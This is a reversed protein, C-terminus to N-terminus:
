KVAQVMNCLDEYNFGCVSQFSAQVSAGPQVNSVVYEVLHASVHKLQVSLLWSLECLVLWELEYASSRDLLDACLLTVLRGLGPDDRMYHRFKFSVLICTGLAARRNKKHIYGNLVLREFYVWGCLAVWPELIDGHRSTMRFLVAKLRRLKTLSFTPSVKPHLARFRANLEERSSETHRHLLQPLANGLPDATFSRIGNGQLLIEWAKFLSEPDLAYPNYQEPPASAKFSVKTEPTSGGKHFWQRLKKLWAGGSMHRASVLTKDFDDGAGNSPERYIFRYANPTKHDSLPPELSPALSSFFERAEDTTTSPSDEATATRQCLYEVNREYKVVTDRM